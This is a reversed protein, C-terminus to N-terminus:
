NVKKITKKDSSKNKDLLNELANAAKVDLSNLSHVYLNLTTSTQAHGLRSSVTRIDTNQGILLTASTHRLKHFSIVPLKYITKEEEPIDENDDISKNYKKITKFLWDTLTNYYMGEGNWQTLLWPTKNWEDSWLDGCVAKEANQTVKYEQLQKILIDPINLTRISSKNKPYKTFMKTKKTYSRSKNVSITKDEFSVDNWTLGLIEGQRLGCFIAINVAAQYKLPEDKIMDLLLLTQNEDYYKTNSETIQENTNNINKPPKVRKCPNEPIIQWYVAQQLASSLIQWQYKIIRDSYGGPKGDKRVGDETLNNLFSLIQIPTLKSLKIHGLSPLIKTDLEYHYSELTRPQLQKNAYEEFWKDFYENITSNSDIYLGKEVQREFDLALKPIEKQWKAETMDDPKILTKYKRIKKGNGDYGASVVVRYKDGRKEINAM